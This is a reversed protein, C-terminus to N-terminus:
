SLDNEIEDLISYYYKSYYINHPSPNIMFEYRGPTQYHFVISEPWELAYSIVNAPKDDILYDAKILYKKSTLIIDERKFDFKDMLWNIRESSFTGPFVSSTCAVVNGLERLDDVFENSFDYKNLGYILGPENLIFKWFRDKLHIFEPFATMDWIDQDMDLEINHLNAYKIILEDFNAIVGDIDLLITKTM